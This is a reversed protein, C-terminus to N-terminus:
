QTAHRILGRSTRIRIRDMRGTKGILFTRARFYEFAAGATFGAFTTVRLMVQEPLIAPMMSDVALGAVTRGFIVYADPDFISLDHFKRSFGPITEHAVTNVTGARHLLCRPHFAEFFMNSKHSFFVAYLRIDIFHSSTADETVIRM